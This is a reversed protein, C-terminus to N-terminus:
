RVFAFSNTHDDNHFYSLGFSSRRDGEATSRRSDSAVDFYNLSRVSRQIESALMRESESALETSLIGVM